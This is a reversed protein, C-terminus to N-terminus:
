AVAASVGGEVPQFKADVIATLVSVVEEHDGLVSRYRVQDIKSLASGEEVLAWINSGSGIYDSIKSPLYPNIGKAATVQSDNVVLVDFDKTARLFDFYQLYPNIKIVDELKVSRVFEMAEGVQETFVHLALRERYYDSIKEIGRLLDELNRKSYFAGFYGLNVRDGPLDYKFNSVSYFSKDLTPHPSIISKDLVMQKIREDDIGSLMYAQQNHCTFVIQDAVLYPLFECWYFLNKSSNPVIGIRRCAEVIVRLFKESVDSERIKSEIDRLLPDSFEAVWRISPRDNKLLFAAFHSAPWMARSYVTEYKVGPRTAWEVAKRAFDEIGTWNSFTTPSDIVKKSEILDFPILNLNADSKRVKAMNNQIVDVVDGATRVRKAMVCASTDVFPPFCYSIVLSKAKGKNVIHFPFDYLGMTRILSLCADVEHPANEMYRKVFGAQAEIKSGLFTKMGPETDVRDRIAVLRQIVDLRQRVSFDFSSPQRSVSDGTIRRFYVADQREVLALEPQHKAVLDSFYVVDEGSKLAIDFELKKVWATPVLKCAVMTIISTVDRYSIDKKELAKRYQRNIGNDTDIVDGNVDHVGCLVMGDDSRRIYMESLLSPAIYDDNDIFTVYQRNALKIGVNRANAAGRVESRTLTVEIDRHEAAFKKVMDTVGVEDGNIVIVIQILNKGVSQGAISTLFQPMTDLGRYCPVVISIGDRLGATDPTALRKQPKRSGSEVDLANKVFVREKNQWAQVGFLVIAADKPPSIEVFIDQDGRNRAFYKYDGVAASTGIGKPTSLRAGTADFFAVRTLITKYVFAEANQLHARLRVPEGGDVLCSVWVPNRGLEILEGKGLKQNFLRVDPLQTKILLDNPLAPIDDFVTKGNKSKTRRWIRFLKAPLSVFNSWSNTSTLLSYGLEFSLSSKTKVVAVEKRKNDVVLRANERALAFIKDNQLRVQGDVDEYIRLKKRLEINEALLAKALENTGSTAKALEALQTFISQQALKVTLSLDETSPKVISEPIERVVQQPATPVIQEPFDAAAHAGTYGASKRQRKKDRIKM